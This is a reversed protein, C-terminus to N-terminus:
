YNNQIIWISKHFFYGNEFYKNNFYYNGKEDILILDKYLTFARYDYINKQFENFVENMLITCKELYNRNLEKIVEELNVKNKM